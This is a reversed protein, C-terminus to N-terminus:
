LVVPDHRLAAGIAPLCLRQLEPTLSETTELIAAVDLAHVDITLEAALRERDEDELGSAHL